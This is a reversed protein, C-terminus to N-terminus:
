STRTLSRARCGVTSRCRSRATAPSRTMRSRTTSPRCATSGSSFVPAKARIRYTQWGDDNAAAHAKALTAADPAALTLRRRSEDYLSGDYGPGIDAQYGIVEHHDPIRRTRFQVGANINQDNVKSEIIRFKLRLEFNEFSESTTLFENRPVRADLSGAVIAGAEIRWTNDLDGEWGAFSEGDFLPKRATQTEEAGVEAMCCLVVTVAAAHWIGLHGNTLM